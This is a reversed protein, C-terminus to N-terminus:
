GLIKALKEMDLPKTLYHDAGLMLAGVMDTRDARATIFIFTASIDHLDNLKQKLVLGNMTPMNIDCCIFDPHEKLILALGTEGNDATLVTHGLDEIVEAIMDRLASEDEIVVVRAM